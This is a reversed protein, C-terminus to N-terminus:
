TEEGLEDDDVSGGTAANQRLGILGDSDKFLLPSFRGDIVKLAEYAASRGVGALKKLEEVAAAQAMRRQGNRFLTQLHTENVKPERRTGGNDFADFDFDPVPVFIGNKREWASRPGLDGDNNKACTFVVRNDETDDSAPQMVMVSRAVSILVYSGSLLNALNRGKHRDESKPKRLHHVILPATEEPSEALIERLRSLAEQFDKEMADRVCSNWPDMILLHPAFDKIEAKMECRFNPNQLALGLPPRDSIRLWDDLDTIDALQQFDRHLRTRGNEGQLWMTRFQCHVELGFWNGAGRAGLIALWLAARSKGCGQPGALVAPMGRQIHYDGVMRQNPPPEYALLQSPTYFQVLKERVKPKSHQEVSAAAASMERELPDFEGPRPIYEDGLDNM